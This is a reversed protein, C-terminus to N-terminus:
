QILNHLGSSSSMTPLPRVAIPRSIYEPLSHRRHCITTTSTTPMDSDQVPASTNTTTDNMWTDTRTAASAAGETTVLTLPVFLPSDDDDDDDDDICDAKDSSLTAISKLAYRTCDLRNLVDWDEDIMRHDNPHNHETHYEDDPQQSFSHNDNLTPHHWLTYAMPNTCGIDRINSLSQVKSFSRQGMRLYDNKYDTYNSTPQQNLQNEKYNMNSLRHHHHHHVKGNMEDEMPLSEERTDTHFRSPTDFREISDYDLEDM